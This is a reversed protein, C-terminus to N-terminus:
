PERPTFAAGDAFARTANPIPLTGGWLLLQRGTWVATPDVRGALPAPPLAQWRNTRPDYALGDPPIAPRAAAPSNTRGGWLLLRRGTWVAAAGVRGSELPPLKRWRAAAPDLAFGVRAPPPPKGSSAPGTGGVVLLERGDWVVNAGSRTEPLAPLRHWSNTAPNYAAARALRAPWPKGDADFDGVLVILERGTWAGIPHQSGALPSRPLPRWRNTRPNYAVGDDFADGCCGGGWGILERGTWAVLGFGDHVSLYRSGPLRRWRGTAPVFAERTGQGWLLMERGTWVAAYGLFSGTRGAPALRRWRDSAPEYAAAVNTRKVGGSTQRTIRGAIIMETGTWVSVVAERPAVPAGPLTQWVGSRGADASAPAAAVIGAAAALGVV